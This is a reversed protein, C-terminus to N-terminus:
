HSRLRTAPLREDLEHGKLDSLSHGKLVTMASLCGVPILSGPTRYPRTVVLGGVFGQEAVTDIGSSLSDLNSLSM